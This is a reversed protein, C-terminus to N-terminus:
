AHEVEEVRADDSTAAGFLSWALDRRRRLIAIREDAIPGSEGRRLADGIREGLYNYAAAYVVRLDERQTQTV